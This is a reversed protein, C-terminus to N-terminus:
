KYGRLSATLKKTKKRMRLEAYHVAATLPKLMPINKIYEKVVGVHKCERFAFKVPNDSGKCLCEFM